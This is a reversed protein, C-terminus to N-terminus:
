QSGDMGRIHRDNFAFLGVQQFRMHGVSDVRLDLSRRKAPVLGPHDRNVREAASQQDGMGPHRSPGAVHSQDRHNQQHKEIQDVLLELHFGRQQETRAFAVAAVPDDVPLVAGVAIGAFSSGFSRVALTSVIVSSAGVGSHEARASCCPFLGM